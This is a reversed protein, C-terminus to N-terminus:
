SNTTSHTAFFPNYSKTSLLYLDKNGLQMYSRPIKYHAIKRKFIPDIINFVYLKPYYYHVGQKAYGLLKKILLM